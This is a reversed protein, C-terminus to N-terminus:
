ISRVQWQSTPRPSTHTAEASRAVRIVESAQTSPDARLQARTRGKCPDVRLGTAAQVYRPPASARLARGIMRRHLGTRKAMERISSREVRQLRRIETWQEMGVV